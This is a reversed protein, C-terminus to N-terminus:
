KVSVAGVGLINIRAKAGSNPSCYLCEVRNPNVSMLRSTYNKELLTWGADLLPQYIPSNYGSLIKHGPVELLTQVLEAHQEDTMEHKYVDPATRTDAVYPPDCYILTKKIDSAYLKICDVANKNEIHVIKLRNHIEPLREVIQLYPTTQSKGYKGISSWGVQCSTFSQRISIFFHAAREVDTLTTSEKLM